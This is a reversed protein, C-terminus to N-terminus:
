RVALSATRWWRATLFSGITMMAALTVCGERGNCSRIHRLEVDM